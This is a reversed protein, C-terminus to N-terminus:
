ANLSHNMNAYAGTGFPEDIAGRSFRGPPVGPLVMAPSEIGFTLENTDDFICFRSAVAHLRLNSTNLFLPISGVSAATPGNTAVTVVCCACVVCLPILGVVLLESRM